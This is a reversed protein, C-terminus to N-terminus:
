VGAGASRQSKGCIKLIKKFIKKVRILVPNVCIEKDNRVIRLITHCDEMFKMRTVIRNIGYTCAVFNGKKEQFDQRCPM